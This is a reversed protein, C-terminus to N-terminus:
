PTYHVGPGHLAPDRTGSWDLGECIHLYDKLDKIVPLAGASSLAAVDFQLRVGVVHISQRKATLAADVVDKLQTPTPNGHSLTFLTNFLGLRYCTIYDAGTAQKSSGNGCAALLLSSSGVLLLALFTRKM